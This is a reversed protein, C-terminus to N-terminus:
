APRPVIMYTATARVLERSAGDVVACEASMIRRGKHVLRGEATLPGSQPQRFYRIHMDTTVPVVVDPDYTGWLAFACTVDAMTALLGGHITGEAYGHLDEKLELTAIAVPGMQVIQLGMWTHLPIKGAREAGAEDTWGDSVVAGKSAIRVEISPSQFM